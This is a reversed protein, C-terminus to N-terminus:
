FLRNLNAWMEPTVEGAEDIIILPWRMRLAEERRYIIEAKSMMVAGTYLIVDSLPVHRGAADRVATGYIALDDYFGDSM